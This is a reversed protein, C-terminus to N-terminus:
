VKIAKGYIDIYQSKYNINAKKGSALRQLLYVELPYFNRNELVKDHHKEHYFRSIDILFLSLKQFVNIAKGQQQHARWITELRTTYHPFYFLFMGNLFGVCYIPLLWFYLWINLNGSFYFAAVIAIQALRNLFYQWAPFKKQWLKKQWYYRDHHWINFPLFIFNKSNTITYDPDATPNSPNRHHIFHTGQFAPFTVGGIIASVNGFLDNLWKYKSLLRHSALHLINLNYHLCVIICIGLGLNQMINLENNLLVYFISFLISNAILFVLRNLNYKTFIIQKLM